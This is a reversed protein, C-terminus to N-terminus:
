LGQHRRFAPFPLYDSIGDFLYTFDSKNYYKLLSTDKHDYQIYLSCEAVPWGRTSYVM